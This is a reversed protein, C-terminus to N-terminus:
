GTETSHNGKYASQPKDSMEDSVFHYNIRTSVIKELFKSLQTLHSVPRYNKLVEKDLSVKNILARVVAEKLQDPVVASSLSANVIKTM